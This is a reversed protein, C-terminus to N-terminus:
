TLAGFFRRFSTWFVLLALLIFAPVDGWRAYITPALAPPLRADLYGASNLPLYDVLRGKGDIVASVGTNASRVLPLGQEIARMRAQELHQWPGVASGFWADNTLHVMVEARQGHVRTHRAFVAEYCILPLARGVYPIDIIEPGQGGVFGFETRNALARIGLSRWFGPLPMYEGFPVLHHKDYTATVAAQTDLLVLANKYQTPDEHARQLGIMTQTRVQEVIYELTPGAEDLYVPLASEPWIVLDPRDGEASFQVMRNFFIPMYDPDWKQHQLANPQVLRIVPADKSIPLDNAGMQWIGVGMLGAWVGFLFALSVAANRLKVWSWLPLVALALTLITLGYPGVFAGWQLVATGSWIHGVLAWPFGTLVFGRLTEALAWFIALRWLGGGLRGAVWFALAWFLALGGALGLLAFPAMWGTTRADVFFPEVIWHLGLGFYGLGMLWGLVAMRRPTQAKSALWLCGVLAGFAVPGLSFPALGTAMAAGFFLAVSRDSGVAFRGLRTEPM